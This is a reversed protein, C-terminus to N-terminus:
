GLTSLVPFKKHTARHFHRLGGKSEFGLECWDLNSCQRTHKPTSKQLFTKILREEAVISLSKTDSFSPKSSGSDSSAKWQNLPSDKAWGDFEINSFRIIM